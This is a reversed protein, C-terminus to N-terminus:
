LSTLLQSQMQEVWQGSNFNLVSHHVTCFMFNFGPLRVVNISWAICCASIYFKNMMICCYSRLDDLWSIKIICVIVSVFKVVVSEGIRVLCKMFLWQLLNSCVCERSLWWMLDIQRLKAGLSSEGGALSNDRFCRLYQVPNRMLEDFPSDPEFLRSSWLSSYFSCSCIMGISGVGNLYQTSEIKEQTM